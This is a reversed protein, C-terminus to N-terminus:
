YPKISNHMYSIMIHQVTFFISTENRFWNLCMTNSKLNGHELAEPSPTTSPVVLWLEWLWMALPLLLHSLWRPFRQCVKWVWVLIYQYSRFRASNLYWFGEPIGYNHHLSKLYGVKDGSMWRMFWCIELSWPWCEIQHSLHWRSCRLWSGNGNGHTSRGCTPTRHCHDQQDGDDQCTEYKM